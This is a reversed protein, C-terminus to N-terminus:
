TNLRGQPMAKALQWLGPASTNGLTRSERGFAKLATAYRACLADSGVIDIALDPDFGPLAACLEHGILLGSLFSAGAQAALEGSLGLARVSFLHKQMQDPAERALALGDHFAQEGASAAATAPEFLRGLITHQSLAAFLEGSFHTEFREIRGEHVSAWKSHSGPLVMLRAVQSPSGAERKPELKSADMAVPDKEGPLKMGLVGLIQTEEGRMVDPMQRMRGPREPTSAMKLGPVVHLLFQGCPAPVLRGALEAPAIPCALYGADILGQKSGIMGCAILPPWQVADASTDPEGPLSDLLTALARAFDAAEPPRGLSAHLSQVGLAAGVSPPSEALVQGGADFVFARAASTGWDLGICVGRPFVPQSM